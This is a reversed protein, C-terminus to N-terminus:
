CVAHKRAVVWGLAVLVVALAAAALFAGTVMGPVGIRGGIV